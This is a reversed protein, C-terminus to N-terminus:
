GNVAAPALTVMGRTGYGALIASMVCDTSLDDDELRYFSHEDIFVKIMPWQVRRLNIMTNWNELMGLKQRQSFFIGEAGLRSDLMDGVVDGIGTADYFTKGRYRMYRDEIRKVAFAWYSGGKAVTNKNFREFEVLKAPRTSVDLTVGVVYDRKRALDWGHLYIHGPYRKYWPTVGDPYLMAYAETPEDNGDGRDWALVKLMDTLESSTAQKLDDANFYDGGMDVIEGALNQRRMREPLNKLMEEIAGRDVYPNQQTNGTQAYVNPVKGSLANLYYEGFANRGNGTSTYDLRGARDALRMRLVNDRIYLFHPEYAAEDWNVDDYDHGLLHEGKNATARAECYAGNIFTIRPYPSHRVDRVLWSARPNQLMAHMKDWVLKAQDQTVSVNVSSYVQGKKKMALALEESWGFQTVCKYIRKMAASQSKGWRNGTVLINERKTSNRLWEQQGEHPQVDLLTDCFQVPDKRCDELLAHVALMVRDSETLKGPNGTM